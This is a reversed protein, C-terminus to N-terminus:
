RQARAARLYAMLDALQRITLESSFDGMPSVSERALRQKLAESTRVSVSHSPAVIASAVEGAPRTKVTAGLDPGRAEAIPPPFSTEGAVQHCVHCRLDAFAKRGAAANGAPLAVTVIEYPDTVTQAAASSAVAACAAAILLLKM